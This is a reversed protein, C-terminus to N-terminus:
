WNTSGAFKRVFKPCIGAALDM